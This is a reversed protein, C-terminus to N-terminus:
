EYAHLSEEIRPDHIPVPEAKPLSRLFSWFVIGGLGIIASIDWLSISFQQVVYGLVNDAHMKVPLINFYLDLLSTIFIWVSIFLMPVLTIKVRYQLLYLFPLVFNFLILGYLSVWWWSSKTGDVANLERMNYWFTEEPIDAHYILFYQCFSIYAWFVTFALFICGMRYLHPRDLVGKLYGRISLFALLFIIMCQGLRMSTAFYWVGYMTSFWQYNLSMVYDFAAFALTLGCVPIGLGSWFRLNWYHKPDGDKDMLFSHKRTIFSFFILILFYLIARFTFFPINLYKSKALYLPDQGIPAHAGPLTANLNMWQWLIGPNEYFWAVLLLPLFFLALWPFIALAHESARRLIVSWGSDLLNWIMVLMLIGISAGFWLMFAILWSFLPRSDGSILGKYFGIAAVAIGIIGVILALMSYFSYDSSVTSTSHNNNKM